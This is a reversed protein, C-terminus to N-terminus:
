TFILCPVDELGQEYGRSLFEVTAKPDVAVCVQNAHRIAGLDTGAISLAEDM